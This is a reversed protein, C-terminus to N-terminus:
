CSEGEFVIRLPVDDGQNEAVVTVFLAPFPM